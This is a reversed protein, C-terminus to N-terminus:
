SRLNRNQFASLFHHYQTRIIGFNAQFSQSFCPPGSLIDPKWILILFLGSACSSLQSIRKLYMFAHTLIHSTTRMDIMTMIVIKTAYRCAILYVLALTEFSGAADLM